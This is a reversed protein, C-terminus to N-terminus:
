TEVGGARQEDVYTMHGGSRKGITVREFSDDPSRWRPVVPVQDSERTVQTFATEDRNPLHLGYLM